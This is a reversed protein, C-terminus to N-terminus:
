ARRVRPAPPVQARVQRDAAVKQALQERSGDCPQLGRRQCEVSLARISMCDTSQKNAPARCDIGSATVRAPAVAGAYRKVEEPTKKRLHDANVATALERITVLKDCPWVGIAIRHTIAPPSNFRVLKELNDSQYLALERASRLIPELQTRFWAYAEAKTITAARAFPAFAESASKSLQSALLFRPDQQNVAAPDGGFAAWLKVALVQFYTADVNKTARAEAALMLVSARGVIERFNKGIYAAGETSSSMRKVLVQEFGYAASVTVHAGVVPWSVYAELFSTMIDSNAQPAWALGKGFTTEDKAQSDSIGNKEYLPVFDIGGDRDWIQDVMGQGAIATFKNRAVTWLKSGDAEGYVAVYSAKNQPLNLGINLVMTVHEACYTKYTDDTRLYSADLLWDKYFQFVFKLNVARYQDNKYDSPFQVGNNLLAM